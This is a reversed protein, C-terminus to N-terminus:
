VIVLDTDVVDILETRCLDPLLDTLQHTSLHCPLDAPDTNPLSGRM